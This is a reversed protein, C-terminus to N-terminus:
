DRRGAALHHAPERAPAVAGHLVRGEELPRAPHAVQREAIRAHALRQRLEGRLRQARQRLAHVHAAKVGEAHRAGVDAAQAVGGDHGRAGGLVGGAEAHRRDIEVAGVVRHEGGHVLQGLDQGLKGSRPVSMPSISSGAIRSFVLRVLAVRNLPTLLSTPKSCQFRKSLPRARSRESNKVPTMYLRSTIECFCRSSHATAESVTSCRGLSSPMWMWAARLTPAVRWSTASTIKWCAVYPPM